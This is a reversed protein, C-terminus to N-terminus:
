GSSRNHENKQDDDHNQEEEHEHDDAPPQTTPPPQQPPPTPQPLPSAPPPEVAPPSPATTTPQVDTAPETARVSPEATLTPAPLAAPTTVIRLPRTAHTTAFIRRLAARRSDDHERIIRVGDDEDPEVRDGGPEHSDIAAQTGASLTVPAASQAQGSLNTQPTASSPTSAATTSRIRSATAAIIPSLRASTDAAGSSADLASPAAVTIDSNPVTRANSDASTWTVVLLIIGMLLLSLIAGCAVYFIPRHLNM